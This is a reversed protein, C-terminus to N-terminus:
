SASAGDASRAADDLQTEFYVVRMRRLMGAMITSAAHGDAARLAAIIARRDAIARLYHEPRLLRERLTNWMGGERMDLLAEVIAPLLKLRSARAIGLLFERGLAHDDYPFNAEMRDVLAELRDVEERTIVEAAREILQCEIVIRSDFQEVPSPGLDPLGEAVSRGFSAEGDRMYMGSGGRVELWGITQLAVIAERLLPRGVGVRPLLAGEPPIRDGPRYGDALLLARLRDAIDLYSRRAPEAPPRQGPQLDSSPM